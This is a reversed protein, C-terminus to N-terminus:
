DSHAIVKSRSLPENSLIGTASNATRYCSIGHSPVLLCVLMPIQWDRISYWQYSFRASAVNLQESEDNAARTKEKEASALRPFLGGPLTAKPEIM